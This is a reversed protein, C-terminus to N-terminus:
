KLLSTKKQQIDLTPAKKTTKRVWPAEAEPKGDIKDNGSAVGSRTVVNVCPEDTRPEVIMM